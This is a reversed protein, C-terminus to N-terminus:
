LCVGSNFAASEIYTLATTLLREQRVISEKFTGRYGQSTMISEECTVLDRHELIVSRIRKLQKAFRPDSPRYAAVTVKECLWSHAKFLAPYNKEFYTVNVAPKYYILATENSRRFPVTVEGDCVYPYTSFERYVLAWRKFEIMREILSRGFGCGPNYRWADGLAKNHLPYRGFPSQASAAKIAPLCSLSWLLSLVVDFYFHAMIPSHDTPRNRGASNLDIDLCQQVM